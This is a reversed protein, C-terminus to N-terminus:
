FKKVAKVPVSAITGNSYQVDVYGVATGGEYGYSGLEIDYSDYVLKTYDSSVAVADQEYVKLKDGKNIYAMSHGDLKIERSGISEAVNDKIISLTL